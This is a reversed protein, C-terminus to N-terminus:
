FDIKCNPLLKYIRNKEKENIPNGTLDLLKLNKLRSISAPLKKIKNYPLVLKELRSLLGIDTHIESIRNFPFTLVRLHSLRFISNPISEFQNFDLKLIRLNKLNSIEDPLNTLRNRPLILKKLKKLTGIFKPLYGLQAHYGTDFVELNELKIIDIPIYSSIKRQMTKRKGNQKWNKKKPLTCYVPPYFNGKMDFSSYQIYTRLIRVKRPTILANELYNYVKEKEIECNALVKRLFERDKQKSISNININKDNIKLYVLQRQQTFYKLEKENPSVLSFKLIKILSKDKIQNSSNYTKRREGFLIPSFIIMLIIIFYNTVCTKM